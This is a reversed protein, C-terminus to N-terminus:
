DRCLYSYALTGLVFGNVLAVCRTDDLLEISLIGTAIVAVVFSLEPTLVAVQM